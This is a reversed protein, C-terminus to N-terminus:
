SKKRNTLQKYFYQQWFTLIEQTKAIMSGDMAIRETMPAVIAAALNWSQGYAIQEQRVEDATPPTSEVQYCKNCVWSEVKQPYQNVLTSQKSDKGHSEWKGCQSCLVKISYDEYVILNDGKDRIQKEQKGVGPLSIDKPSTNKM